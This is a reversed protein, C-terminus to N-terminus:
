QEVRSMPKRYCGIARVITIMIPVTAAVSCLCSRDSDKEVNINLVYRTYKINMSLVQKKWQEQQALIMCAQSLTFLRVTILFFSLLSFLSSVNSLYRIRDM